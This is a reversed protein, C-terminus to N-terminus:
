PSRMLSSAGTFGGAATTRLAITQPDGHIQVNCSRRRKGSRYAIEREVLLAFRDEFPLAQASPLALQEEFTDAMGHLKLARLQDLTQQVIM